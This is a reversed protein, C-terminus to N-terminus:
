ETSALVASAAAGSFQAAALASALTAFAPSMVLFSGGAVAAGGFGPVTGDASSDFAACRGRGSFIGGDEFTYGRRMPFAVSVAGIIAATCQGCQLSQQAM